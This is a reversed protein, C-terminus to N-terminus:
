ARRDIGEQAPRLPARGSPSPHIRFPGSQRSLVPLRGFAVSNSASAASTASVYGTAPSESASPAAPPSSGTFLVGNRANAASGAVGPSSAARADSHSRCARNPIQCTRSGFAAGPTHHVSSTEPMRRYACNGAGASAPAAGHDTQSPASTGAAPIQRLVPFPIQSLGRSPSATASYASCATHCRSSANDPTGDSRSGSDPSILNPCASGYQTRQSVPSSGSGSNPSFMPGTMARSAVTSAERTQHFRDTGTASVFVSPSGMIRM